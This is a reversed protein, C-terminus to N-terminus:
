FLALTRLIKLRHKEGKGPPIKIRGLDIGVAYGKRMLTNVLYTLKSLKTELDGSVSNLTLIVSGKELASMDKVKLSDTKASLKWHILKMPEGTYDRIEKLEEYGTTTLSEQPGEENLFGKTIFEQAPIPKPFIILKVSFEVEYYRVFMGLPFESSVIVRLRNVEGRRPFSFRIKGKVPEPGIYPFLASGENGLVEVIFSPLKNEKKLFIEFEAPKQAYIEKPPKLSLKICKLNLASVTGSLLMTALLLSVIIYLLNNGTNVAAIGLLITLLIFLKGARNVKVKM